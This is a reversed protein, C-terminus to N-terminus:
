VSLPLCYYYYHPCNVQGFPWKDSIYLCLTLTLNLTLNRFRSLEMESLHGKPCTVQLRLLLLLLLLSTTTTNDLTSAPGRHGIWPSLPIHVVYLKLLLFWALEIGYNSQSGTCSINVKYNYYIVCPYCYTCVKKFVLCQPTEEEKVPMTDSASVRNSASTASDSRKSYRHSSSSTFPPSTM